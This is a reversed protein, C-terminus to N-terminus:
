RPRPTVVPEPDRTTTIWPPAELKLDSGIVTCNGSRHGFQNRLIESLPESSGAVACGFWDLICQNAVKVVDDPLEDYTIDKFKEWAQLHNM